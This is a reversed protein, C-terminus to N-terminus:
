LHTIVRPVGQPVTPWVRMVEKIVADAYPMADLVDPTFKDGFKAVVAEQEQKLKQLVAPHKELAQLMRAMTNGAWTSGRADHSAKNNAKRRERCRRQRTKLVCSHRAGKGPMERELKATIILHPIPSFLVFQCPVFVRSM